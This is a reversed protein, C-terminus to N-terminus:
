LDVGYVAVLPLAPRSSSRVIKASRQLGHIHHQASTLFVVAFTGDDVRFIVEHSGACLGLGRLWRYASPTRPRPLRSSVCTRYSCGADILSASACSNAVRSAASMLRASLAEACSM